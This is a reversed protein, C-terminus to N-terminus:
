KLNTAFTALATADNRNGSFPISTGDSSVGIISPFSTINYKEILDREEDVDAKYFIVTNGLTDAATDFANKGSEPLNASLYEVCYKCWKAHFLIVQPKRQEAEVEDEFKELAKNNSKLLFQKVVWLAIVILIIALMLYLPKNM